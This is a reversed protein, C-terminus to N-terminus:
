GGISRTGASAAPADRQVAPGARFRNAELFILKPMWEPCARCAEPLGASVANLFGRERVDSSLPWGSSARKGERASSPLRRFSSPRCTTWASTGLDELAHIAHTKGSGSLGTVVMFRTAHRPRKTRARRDQKRAAPRARKMQPEGSALSRKPMQIADGRGCNSNSGNRRSRARREPRAVAAAPKAGRGGGADGPQPRTRGAHLHVARARRVARLRERRAGLRDYKAIRTGASSSCWSSSVSPRARRPSASCIGSTSSAWAACSWTIGRRSRAHASSSPTAGGGSRVTDDAVLRHGRVVLDLACESKGIGSDGIILVGLGLVDM